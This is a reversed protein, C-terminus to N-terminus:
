HNRDYFSIIEKEELYKESKSGMFYFCSGGAINAKEPILKEFLRLWFFCAAALMGVTHSRFLGSFFYRISWILSTGVGAVAGSGILSFKRFLWRHGSETFRTFDYAGEHVQQMFPTEAYVIGGPKLVRYIEDVVKQPDLVHELVAQVIVADMCNDKVPISHADAIFDTNDSVYVDFSTVTIGLQSYISETGLGRTGGGVILLQASNAKKALLELLKKIQFTSVPSGGWLIKKLFTGPGGKRRKIVAGKQKDQYNSKEFLGNSFNLLVPQSNIIKFPQRFAVCDENNCTFLASSYSLDGKKCCPCQLIQIFEAEFDEGKVTKRDM